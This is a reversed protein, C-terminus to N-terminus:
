QLNIEAKKLANISRYYDFQMKLNDIRVKSKLMNVRESQVGKLYEKFEDDTRAQRERTAESGEYKNACKALVSKKSEDLMEWNAAYIAFLEGEKQVEDPILEFPIM